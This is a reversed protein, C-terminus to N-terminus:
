KIISRRINQNLNVLFEYNFINHTHCIKNISIPSNKDNDIITIEDNIKTPTKTIDIMTHNMCVKGVIPMKKNKYLFFGNNSFKRPIGEYYGLPLIGISSDKKATWTHNYSVTENRKIKNIKSISSTLKLAPKLNKYIISYKDHQGLPTIGYLAIGSRTTNAYKSKIKISGASQAIHIYKPEYGKKIIKEVCNDFIKVQNDINITTAPNDADALHSMIGDVKIKKAKKLINLFKDLDKEKVGHRNMGSEIEIHVKYKKNSKKMALITSIEHICFTFNRPKIKLFNIDKISGMILIPQNSTKHIDLAEFYGDVAIYPPTRKKLIKAVQHLGHGYANSKLVPILYETSAVKKILDYNNLIASESIYINNYVNYKKELSKLQNIILSKIRM